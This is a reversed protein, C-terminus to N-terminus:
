PVLCVCILHCSYSSPTLRVGRLHSLEPGGHRSFRALDSPRVDPHTFQLASYSKQRRDLERIARQTLFIKSARDWFEPSFNNKPISQARESLPSSQRLQSPQSPLNEMLILSRTELIALRLHCTTPPRDRDTAIRLLTLCAAKM